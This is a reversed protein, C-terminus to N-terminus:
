TNDSFDYRVKEPSQYFWQIRSCRTCILITASKNLWDLNLFTAGATNLQASSKEFIDNRCLPCVVPVGGALYHGPGFSDKAAKIGRKFRQIFDGLYFVEVNFFVILLTSNRRAKGHRAAKQKAACIIM